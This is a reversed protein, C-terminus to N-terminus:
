HWRFRRVGVGDFVIWEVGFYGVGGAAHLPSEDEGPLQAEIARFALAGHGIERRGVGTMRGVEGVSFPPFNHHLMFRRKQEGEYARQGSRQLRDHGADREGAGADRRTYIVGLRAGPAASWGGGDGRSDPRVSQSGSSDSREAGARPLHEGAAARLVASSRRRRRM